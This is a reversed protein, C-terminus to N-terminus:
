EKLIEINVAIRQPPNSFMVEKHHTVNVKQGVKLTSITSEDIDTIDFLIKTKTDKLESSISMLTADISEIYGITQPLEQSAEDDETQESKQASNPQCAALLFLLMISSLFLISIKNM